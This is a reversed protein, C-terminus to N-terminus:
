TYGEFARKAEDEHDVFSKITNAPVLTLLVTWLQFLTLALYGDGPLAPPMRSTLREFRSGIFAGLGNLRSSFCRGLGCFAPVRKRFLQFNQPDVELISRLWVYPTVGAMPSQGYRAKATLIM